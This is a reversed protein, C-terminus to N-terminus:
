LTEIERAWFAKWSPDVSEKENHSAEKFKQNIYLLIEKKDEYIHFDNKKISLFYWANIKGLIIPKKLENIYEKKSFIFSDGLNEELEEEKEVIKEPLGKLANLQSVQYLKDIRNM